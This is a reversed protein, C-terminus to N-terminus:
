PLFSSIQTIQGKPRKLLKLLNEILFCCKSRIVIKSPLDHPCLVKLLMYTQPQIKALIFTVAKFFSVQRKEKGWLQIQVRRLLRKLGSGIRENCRQCLQESIQMIIEELFFQVLIRVLFIRVPKLIHSQNEGQFWLLYKLNLGRSQYFILTSELM